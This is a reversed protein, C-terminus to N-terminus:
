DHSAADAFPDGHAAVRELVAAPSFVLRDPEGDATAHELEEWRLPTSVSPRDTARLSYPAATSRRPHNQAWDILVQGSRDATASDTLEARQEAALEAALARANQRIEPYPRREDLPAYIHLGAGGSTKVVPELGRDSLLERLRLAAKGAELLGAGPGPDLDFVILGAVEGDPGTGLYPHLEITGLNAVWALAAQCDILCFDRLQGNRLRLTRTALWEPRGRCETQAFGPGDVGDPFRGLTVPRDALHPLLAPAVALYYDVMDGKTFGTAPWLVKDRSTVRVARGDLELEVPTSM